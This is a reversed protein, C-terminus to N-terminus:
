GAKDGFIPLFAAAALALAAAAAMSALSPMTSTGGQRDVGGELFGMGDVGMLACRGQLCLCVLASSEAGCLLSIATAISSALRGPHRDSEQPIHAVQLLTTCDSHEKHDLATSLGEMTAAATRM